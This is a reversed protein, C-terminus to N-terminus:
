DRVYDPTIAYVLPAGHQAAMRDDCAQEDPCWFSLPESGLGSVNVKGHVRCYDCQGDIQHCETVHLKLLDWTDFDVRAPCLGCFYGYM